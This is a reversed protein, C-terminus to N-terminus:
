VFGHYDAFTLLGNGIAFLLAVWWTPHSTTWGLLLSGSIHLLFFLTTAFWGAAFWDERSAM